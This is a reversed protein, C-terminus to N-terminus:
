LRSLLITEVKTSREAGRVLTRNLVAANGATMTTIREKATGIKMGITNRMMGTTTVIMTSTMTGIRMTTMMATTITAIALEAVAALVNLAAGKVELSDFM